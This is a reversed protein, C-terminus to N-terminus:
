LLKNQNQDTMALFDHCSNSSTSIRSLGRRCKCMWPGFRPFTVAWLPCLKVCGNIYDWCDGTSVGVPWSWGSLGQYPSVEWSITPETWSATSM